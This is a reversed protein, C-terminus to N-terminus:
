AQGPTGKLGALKDKIIGAFFKMDGSTAIGTSFCVAPFLALMVTKCLVELPWSLGQAYLYYLFGTEAFLVLFLLSLKGLNLPVRTLKIGIYLQFAQMLGMSGFMAYAAGMLGYRPILLFNAATGIVLGVLNLPIQLYTKKPDHYILWYSVLALSGFVQYYIYVPVVYILQHYAPATLLVVLQKSILIVTLGIFLMLAMVKLQINALKQLAAPTNESILELTLPSLAGAVGDVAMKMVLGFRSSMDLIGVQFMGKLRNMIFKDFYSYVLGIISSPAQPWSYLLSRKLLIPNLRFIYLNRVRWFSLITKFAESLLGALVLAQWKLGYLVLAVSLVAYAATTCAENFFWNRGEHRNQILTQNAVNIYVFVYQLAAAFFWPYTVQGRFVATNLPTFFLWAAAFFLGSSALMFFLNSGLMEGLDKPTDKHAFYFRATAGTISAAPISGLLAVATIMNIVGYDEPNICRTIIPLTAFTIGNRLLPALMYYFTNKVFRAKHESM